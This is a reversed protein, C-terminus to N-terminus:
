DSIVLIKEVWGSFYEPKVMLILFWKKNGDM